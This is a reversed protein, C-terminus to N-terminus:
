RADLVPPPQRQGGVVDPPSEVARLPLAPEPVDLLRVAHAVRLLEEPNTRGRTPSRCTGAQSRAHRAARHAVVDDVSGWVSPGHARIARDFLGMLSLPDVERCWNGMKTREETLLSPRCNCAIHRMVVSPGGGTSDVRESCGIGAHDVHARCGDIHACLDRSRYESTTRDNRQVIPLMWGGTEDNLQQSLVWLHSHNAVRAGVVAVCRETPHEFIGLPECGDTSSGAM